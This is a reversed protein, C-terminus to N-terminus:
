GGDSQGQLHAKFWACTQKRLAPQNTAWQKARHGNNGSPHPFGILCRRADILGEKILLTMAEGVRVGLPVVLADPIIALEPALHERVYRTLLQSATIKPSSGSYNEGGVFVPYRIASTPHLYGQGNREWLQAATRLGLHQPVALEDLWQGLQPRFGSFSARSKVENLVSASGRGARLGEATTRYAILMTDRGPTIGVVALRATPRLWDMPAYYIELLGDRELRFAPKLVDAHTLPRRSPLRRIRPEFTPYLEGLRPM